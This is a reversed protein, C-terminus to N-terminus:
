GGLDMLEVRTGDPDTLYVFRLTADGFPIETLTGEIVEGGLSALLAATADLDTVRFSLHTLGTRNIPRRGVQEAPPTSFCLLEIRVGDKAVFQSRVHVEDLEMLGAFDNGVEHREAPEFGLGECYFSMSRDLDSVCIGLHSFVTSMSGELREPNM